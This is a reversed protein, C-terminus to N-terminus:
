KKLGALYVSMMRRGKEEVDFSGSAAQKQFLIGRHMILFDELLTQREREELMNEAICEDILMAILRYFSRDANIALVGQEPYKISHTFSNFLTPEGLSIKLAKGAFDVLKEMGSRSNDNRYVEILQEYAQDVNQTVQIALEEKSKFYHYINGASCGAERAVDEISVNEFGYKDFLLLATKQIKERMLLAQQQRKNLKKEM